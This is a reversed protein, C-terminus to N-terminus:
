ETAIRPTLFVILETRTLRDSKNKFLWGLIPISMLIPIGSTNKTNQESILGGINVESLWARSSVGNSSGSGTTAGSNM